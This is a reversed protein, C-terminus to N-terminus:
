HALPVGAGVWRRKGVQIAAHGVAVVAVAGLGVLWGPVGARVAAVVVFGDALAVLTFGVHELYAATPGGTRDPRIRAALEARVLVVAALVLLGGFVARALPDTASWDLLLAPVLALVMVLLALRYVGLFRGAPLALLGAGFALTAAAAHVAVFVTDSM